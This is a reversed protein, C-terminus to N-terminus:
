HVSNLVTWFIKAIVQEVYTRLFVESRLKTVIKIERFSSISASFELLSYCLFVLTQYNM